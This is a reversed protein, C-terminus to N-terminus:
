SWRLLFWTYNTKDRFYLHGRHRWWGGRDRGPPGFAERCWEMGAWAEPMKAKYIM